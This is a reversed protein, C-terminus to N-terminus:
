IVGAAIGAASAVITRAKDVKSTQSSGMLLIGAILLMLWVVADHRSLGFLLAAVGLGILNALSGKLPGGDLGRWWTIAFLYAFLLGTTIEWGSPNVVAWLFAATPTTVLLIYSGWTRTSKSLMWALLALAGMNLLVSAGRGGLDLRVSGIALLSRQGM